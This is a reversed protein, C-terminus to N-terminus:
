KKVKQPQRGYIRHHHLWDVCVQKPIVTVNRNYEVNRAKDDIETREHNEKEFSGSIAAVKDRQDEKGIDDLNRGAAEKEERDNNEREKGEENKDNEDRTDKESEDKGENSDIIFRKEMENAEGKQKEDVLLEEEGSGQSGQLLHFLYGTAFFLLFVKKRRIVATTIKRSMSM